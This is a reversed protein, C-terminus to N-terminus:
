QQAFCHTQLQLNQFLGPTYCHQPFCWRVKRILAAVVGFTGLGEGCASVGSPTFQGKPPLATNGQPFNRCVIHVELRLTLVAAKLKICVSTLM